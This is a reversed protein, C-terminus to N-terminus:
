DDSPSTFTVNATGSAGVETEPGAIHSLFAFYEEDYLAPSPLTVSQQSKLKQVADRLARKKKKSLPLMEVPRYEELNPEKENAFSLIDGPRANRMPDTHFYVFDLLGSTDDHWLKVDRFLRASVSLPLDAKVRDVGTEDLQPGCDYLRFDSDGFRSEYAQAALFGAKEAADIADTSERCYPGYHVFAWPWGTFPQGKSQAWYLDLLYLFKVLRIKTLRGGRALAASALAGLLRNILDNKSPQM